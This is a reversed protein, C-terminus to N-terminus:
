SMLSPNQTLMRRDGKQRGKLEGTALKGDKFDTRKRGAAFASGNSGSSNAKAATGMKHVNDTNKLSM